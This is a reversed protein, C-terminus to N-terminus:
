QQGQAGTNESPRFGPELIAASTKMSRIPSGGIAVATSVGTTFMRHLEGLLFDATQRLVDEPQPAPAVAAPTQPSPRSM